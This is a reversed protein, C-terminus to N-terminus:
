VSSQQGDSQSIDIPVALTAAHLGCTCQNAPLGKNLDNSDESSRHMIVDARTLVTGFSQIYGSCSDDKRM